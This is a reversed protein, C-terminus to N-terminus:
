PDLQHCRQMSCCPSPQFPLLRLQKKTLKKAPKPVDEDDGQNSQKGKRGNKGSPELGDPLQVDSDDPWDDDQNKKGKGKKKGMGGRGM